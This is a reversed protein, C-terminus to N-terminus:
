ISGADRGLFAVTVQFYLILLARSKAQAEDLDKIQSAARMLRGLPLFASACDTYGAPDAPL